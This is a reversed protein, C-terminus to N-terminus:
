VKATFLEGTCVEAETCVKFCILCFVVSVMGLVKRLFHITKLFCMDVPCV